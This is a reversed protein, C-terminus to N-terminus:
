LCYGRSTRLNLVRVKEISDIGLEARIDKLIGQAEIAFADKKESFLRRVAMTDRM